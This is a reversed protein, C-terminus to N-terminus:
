MRGKDILFLNLIRIIEKIGGSKSLVLFPFANKQTGM